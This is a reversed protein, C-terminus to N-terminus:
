KVKYGRVLIDVDFFQKNGYLGTIKLNQVRLFKDSKEIDVLFNMLRPVSVKNLRMDVHVEQLQESLPNNSDMEPTRDSLNKLPIKTNRSLREFFPKFNMNRTKTKVRKILKDFRESQTLEEQKLVKLDSLAQFRLNLEDQLSKVQMFYFFFIFVVFSFLVMAFIALVGNRYHPELKYFSDMVFDLRENNRGLIKERIMKGYSNFREKLENLASM